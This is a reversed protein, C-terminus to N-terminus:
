EDIWRGDSRECSVFWVMASDKVYRYLELYNNDVVTVTYEVNEPGGVLEAYWEENACGYYMPGKHFVVNLHDLKEYIEAFDNTYDYWAGMSWIGRGDETVGDASMFTLTLSMEEDALKYRDGEIEGEVGAWEGELYRRYKEMTYDTNGGSPDEESDDPVTPEAPEDPQVPTTSGAIGGSLGPKAANGTDPDATGSDPPPPVPAPDSTKNSGDPKPTSTIEVHCATLGMVLVLLVPWIWRRRM